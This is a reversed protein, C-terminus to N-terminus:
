QKKGRSKRPAKKKSPTKKKAPKKPSVDFSAFAKLLRHAEECDGLMVEDIVRNKESELKASLKNRLEERKRQIKQNEVRADYQRSNWEPIYDSLDFLQALQVYQMNYNNPQDSLLKIKGRKILALVEKGSIGGADVLPLEENVQQSIEGSKSVFIEEVRDRLYRRQTLNFKSGV